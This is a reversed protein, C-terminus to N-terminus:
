DLMRDRIALMDDLHGLFLTALTPDFHAGREGDFHRIVRDVPWPRKYPRESLLADFVDAIAVIRGSLPIAEGKLGNPYGTGDWREHHTRAIEAAMELLPIGSGALIRGGAEAHTQMIRWEDAALSGPKLLLRDPIAIKGIDHLPAAKEILDAYDADVGAVRALRGSLAGIRVVHKGTVDDRFESAACLKRIIEQQAHDLDRTRAHVERELRDARERQAKSLLGLELLNRVRSLLEWLEFPKTVFDRAGAELAARRVQAEHQATIVLVPPMGRPSLRRAERLFETGDMGPMRFDLLILDPDLSEYMGLAARPDTTGTIARYGASELLGELLEVNAPVDDVVLIRAEHVSVECLM